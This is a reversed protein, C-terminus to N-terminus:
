FDSNNTNSTCIYLDSSVKHLQNEEAKIYNQLDSDDPRYPLCGVQWTM